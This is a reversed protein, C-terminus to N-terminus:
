TSQGALRFDSAGSVRWGEDTDDLLYRIGLSNSASEARLVVDLTVQEGGDRAVCDGFELVVDELLPQYSALILGTFQELSVAEQFSPSSYSYAAEFDSMRLAEAQGTVARRAGLSEADACDRLVGTSEPTQESPEDSQSPPPSSSFGGEDDAVDASVGLLSCGGLLLVLGLVVAPIRM